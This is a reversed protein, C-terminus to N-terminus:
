SYPATVLTGSGKRDIRALLNVTAQAGNPYSVTKEFDGRWNGVYSTYVAM